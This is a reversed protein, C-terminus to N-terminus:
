VQNDGGGGGGGGGWITGCAKVGEGMIDGM